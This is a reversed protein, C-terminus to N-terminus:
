RAGIIWLVNSNMQANATLAGPPYGFWGMGACWCEGTVGYYVVIPPPVGLVTFGICYTRCSSDSGANPHYHTATAWFQMGPLNAWCRVGDTNTPYFNGKFDTNYTAIPASYPPNVCSCVGTSVQRRWFASYGNCKDFCERDDASAGYTVITGVLLFNNLKFYDGYTCLTRVDITRNVYDSAITRIKEDRMAVMKDFRTRGADMFLRTLATEDLTSLIEAALAENTPDSAFSEAYHRVRSGEESWNDAACLACIIAFCVLKLLM